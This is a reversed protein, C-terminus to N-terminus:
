PVPSNVAARVTERIAKRADSSLPTQELTKTLVSEAGREIAAHAAKRITPRLRAPIGLQDMVSDLKEDVRARIMENVSRRRLPPPPPTKIIRQVREEITEPRLPVMRRAVEAPSPITVQRRPATPRQQPPTGTTGSVLFIEVRRNRARGDPSRNNAVPRSEGASRSTLTLRAALGPSLQEIAATLAIQAHRARRQGLTVNYRERGTGDTHGVLEIRQVRTPTKWSDVIRQAINRLATLHSPKLTARDFDFRDLIDAAPQPSPSAGPQGLAYAPSEPGGYGATPGTEDQDDDPFYHEGLGHVSVGHYKSQCGACRCDPGCGSLSPHSISQNGILYSM